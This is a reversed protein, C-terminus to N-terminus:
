IKSIILFGTEKGHKTSLSNYLTSIKVMIRPKHSGAPDILIIENKKLDISEILGDHLYRGKDADNKHIEHGKYEVWLDNNATINEQIFKKLDQIEHLRKSIVQLTIKNKRFFLRVKKNSDLTSIGEDYNYRSLTKLKVSFVHREEKAIKVGFFKALEQQDFLGYRRRYLLMQFCTVACCQPKQVLPVYPPRLSITRKM